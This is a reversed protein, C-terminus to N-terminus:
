PLSKVTVARTRITGTSATVSHYTAINYNAGPTLGSVVIAHSGAGLRISSAVIRGVDAHTDGTDSGDVVTGSGVTTGTRVRWGLLCIGGSNAVDGYISVEVKGSSPAVFAVGCVPSGNVSSTSTTTVDTLESHEWTTLEDIKDEVAAIDDEVDSAFSLFDAPADAADTLTPIAYGRDPSTTPM